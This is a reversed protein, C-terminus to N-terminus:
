NERVWERQRIVKVQGDLSRIVRYDGHGYVLVYPSKTYGYAKLVAEEPTPAEILMKEYSDTYCSVEYM